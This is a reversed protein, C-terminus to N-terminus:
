HIKGYFNWNKLTKIKCPMKSPRFLNKPFELKYFITHGGLVCLTKNYLSIDWLSIKPFSFQEGFLAQVLSNCGFHDLTFNLVMNIKSPIVRLKSTPKPGLLLIHFYWPNYLDDMSGFKLKPYGFIHQSLFSCKYCAIISFPLHDFSIFVM